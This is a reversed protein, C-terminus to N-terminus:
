LATAHAAAVPELAVVDQASPAEIVRDGLSCSGDFLVRVAAVRTPLVDGVPGGVVDGVTRQDGGVDLAEEHGSPAERGTVVRMCTYQPRSGTPSASTLRRVPTCM